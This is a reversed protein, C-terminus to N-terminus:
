PKFFWQQSNTNSLCTWQHINAGDKTTPGDIDMCKGSHDFKIQYAGNIGPVLRIAQNTGNLCDWQQIKAANATSRGSVDMCKESQLNVLNLAGSTTLQVRFKQNHGMRCDSQRIKNGNTNDGDNVEACKNSFLSVLSYVGGEKPATDEDDTPDTNEGKTLSIIRGVSPVGRENILFLLYYGPPAINPSNPMMVQVSDGEVRFDSELYRQSMDFSHTVAGTRILAVKKVSGDGSFPVEVRSGYVQQTNFDGTKLRPALNGADDFLYPPYYIEANLNTLPGPAGGGGVLVTADPLLLAVSHYLRATAATALRRFQKSHPNWMEATKAPEILKNKSASGGTVLVEGNPLVTSTAWVRRFAMNPLNTVIPSGSTIDVSVAQNSGAAQTDGSTSGGAQFILGPRYMVATSTHSRTKNPLTGVERTGGEGGWDLFYMLNGSMGFVRGNPAVFNRPYFWKGEVDSTIRTNTAGWLTRWEGGSFIEPTAMPQGGAERGGHVLSEGNPLTTVTAYWRAFNMYDSRVLQQSETQFILTDKIGVNAPKRRDGGPVLVDGNPLLATAGCFIDTRTTNPLTQHSDRNVGSAPNWVDYNFQAGQQGQANTGFTFVKGNPLLTAHIPIIPWSFQSSWRGRLNDSPAAHAAMSGALSLVILKVLHCDQTHQMLFGEFVHFNDALPSNM